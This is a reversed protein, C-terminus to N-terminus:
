GKGLGLFRSCLNLVQKLNLSTLNYIFENHVQFLKEVGLYIRTNHTGNLICM